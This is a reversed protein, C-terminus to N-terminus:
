FRLMMENTPKFGNREYIPKGFKSAHLTAVKIGRRKTEETAVALLEGALGRGRHAPDTFFNLLYARVPEADMWHPPFDMLWVGAGAIVAGDEEALWGLYRGDELRPRVWELFNKVMTAMAQADAFGADAFMRRRHGAIVEADAATAM